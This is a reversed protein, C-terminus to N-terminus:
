VLPGGLPRRPGTHLLAPLRKRRQTLRSSPCNAHLRGSAELQREEHIGRRSDPRIWSTPCAGVRLLRTRLCWSPSVLVCFTLRGLYKVLLVISAHASTLGLSDTGLKFTSKAVAIFVCSINSTLILGLCCRCIPLTLLREIVQYTGPIYTHIYTRICTHQISPNTSTCPPKVRRLDTHTAM